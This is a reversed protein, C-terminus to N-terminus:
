YCLTRVIVDGSCPISVLPTPLLFVIVDLVLDSTAMSEEARFSFKCSKTVELASGWHAGVVSGCNYLFLLLFGRMWILTTAVAVKTAFNFLGSNRIVFVRRYYHAISLRVLGHGVLM